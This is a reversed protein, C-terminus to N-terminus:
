PAVNAGFIGSLAMLVLAYSLLCVFLSKLISRTLISSVFAVGLAVFKALQEPTFLGVLNHYFREGYLASYIIGGMVSYSAYNFFRTVRSGEALPMRRLILLPAARLFYSIGACLLIPQWKNM